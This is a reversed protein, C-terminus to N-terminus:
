ELQSKYLTIVPRVGYDNVNSISGERLYGDFYVRWSSYSDDACSSLLWYGYIESINQLGEGTVYLSNKLYNALYLPCSGFCDSESFALCKGEGYVEEYMPLRAKLNTYSATKTIGDKHLISTINNETKIGNYGNTGKAQTNPDINEDKYDIKINPINTWDKTANYLFNMATIPGKNHNGSDDDIIDWELEDESEKVYDEKSTWAVKNYIGNELSLSSIGKEALSGDNNINREMILNIKDDEVSLIYFNYKVGPKVECSYKDGLEYNGQPINGLTTEKVRDCIIGKDFNSCTKDQYEYSYNNARYIIKVSGLVEEESDPDVIEDKDLYGKNILGEVNICTRTEDLDVHSSDIGEKIYYSKAANEISKIQIDSLNEKSDDIVPSVVISTVLLLAMLVIIVALLEILTFGKNM